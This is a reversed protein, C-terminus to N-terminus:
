PAAEAGATRTRARLRHLVGRALSALALATRRPRADPRGEVGVVTGLVDRPDLPPDFLVGRDAKMRWRGSTGPIPPGWVLRHLRLGEPGRALVVDGFRPPRRETSVLHVKEGDDISPQMCQGTVTLRVWPFSALCERLLEERFPVEPADGSSPAVTGRHREAARTPPPEVPKAPASRGRGLAIRAFRLGRRLARVIRSGPASGAHEDEPLFLTRWLLEARRAPGRVLEWRVRVLDPIAPSVFAVPTDLRPTLWRRIGDAPAKEGRVAEDV